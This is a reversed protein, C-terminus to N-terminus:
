FQDKSMYGIAPAWLCCTLKTALLKTVMHDRGMGNRLQIQPHMWTFVSGVYICTLNVTNFITPSGNCRHQSIISPRCLTTNLLSIIHHVMKWFADRKSRVDPLVVETVCSAHLLQANKTGTGSEAYKYYKHFLIPAHTYRLTRSATDNMM